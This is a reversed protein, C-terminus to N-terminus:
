GRSTIGWECAEYRRGFNNTSVQDLFRTVTGEHQDSLMHSPAFCSRLSKLQRLDDVGCLLLSGEGEPLWPVIKEFHNNFKTRELDGANENEIFNTTPYKAAFRYFIHSLQSVSDVLGSLIQSLRGRYSTNTARLM